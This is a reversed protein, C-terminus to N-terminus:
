FVDLVGQTVGVLRLSQITTTKDVNIVDTISCPWENDTLTIVIISFIAAIIRDQKNM